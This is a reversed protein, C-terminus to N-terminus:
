EPQATRTSMTNGGGGGGGGQIETIQQLIVELSLM